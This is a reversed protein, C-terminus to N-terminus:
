IITLRANIIKKKHWVRWGNTEILLLCYCPDHWVKRDFTVSVMFITVSVRRNPANHCVNARFTTGRHSEVDYLIIM